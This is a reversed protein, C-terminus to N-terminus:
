SIQWGHFERFVALGWWVGVHGLTVLFTIQDVEWGALYNRLTTFSGRERGARGSLVSSEAEQAQLATFVWVHRSEGRLDSQTEMREDREALKGRASKRVSWHNNSYFHGGYADWCKPPLLLCVSRQLNSALM